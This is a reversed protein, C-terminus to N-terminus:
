IFIDMSVYKLSTSMFNMFIYQINQQTQQLKSILCLFASALGIEGARAACTDNQTISITQIVRLIQIFIM